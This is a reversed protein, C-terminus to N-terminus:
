FTGVWASPRAAASEIRTGGDAIGEIAGLAAAPVRLSTLFAPLIATAMEHGWDSLLSTFGMGVVNRNLWRMVHPVSAAGEAKPDVASM